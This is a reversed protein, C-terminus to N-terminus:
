RINEEMGTGVACWDGGVGDGEREKPKVRSVDGM